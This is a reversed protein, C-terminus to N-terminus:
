QLETVPGDKGGVRRGHGTCSIILVDGTSCEHSQVSGGALIGVAVQQMVGPGLSRTRGHFQTGGARDARCEGRGVTVDVHAQVELNLHRVASVHRGVVRMNDDVPVIKGRFSIGARILANGFAVDNAEFPVAGVREAVAQGILPYLYGARCDLQAVGMVGVRGERCWLQVATLWDSEFQVDAVTGLGRDIRDVHEDVSDIVARGCGSSRILDNFLM